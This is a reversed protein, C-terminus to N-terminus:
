PEWRDTLIVIDIEHEKLKIYFSDIHDPGLLFICKNFDRELLCDLWYKERKDWHTREIIDIEASQKSTLDRGYGLELAIESRSKIGLEKRQISDPDCFLHDTGLNNAVRLAVSDSAKWLSIAETNLEEAILDPKENLCLDLLYSKFIKWESDYRELQFSHNLGVLLLKM